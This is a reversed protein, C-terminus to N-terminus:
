RQTALYDHIMTETVKDAGFHDKVATLDLDKEKALRKAAPTARVRPKRSRKSARTQSDADPPAPPTDSSDIGLAHERHHTLIRDNETKADSIDQDTCEGQLAVIFGIPLTSNEATLRKSVVGTEPAELEIEGKDTTLEAITNGQQVEEGEAILWQTLTVELVNASIKPISIRSAM